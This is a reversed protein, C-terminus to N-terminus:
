INRKCFQFEYRSSSELVFTICLPNLVAKAKVKIPEIKAGFVFSRILM